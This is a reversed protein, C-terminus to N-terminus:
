RLISWAALMVMSWLILAALCGVAPMEPTYTGWRKWLVVTDGWMTRVVAVEGFRKHTIFTHWSQHQVCRGM